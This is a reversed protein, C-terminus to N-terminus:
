ITIQVYDGDASQVEVLVWEPHRHRYQNVARILILMQNRSVAMGNQKMFSPLIMAMVPNLCLGTPLQLRINKSDNSHVTIKM